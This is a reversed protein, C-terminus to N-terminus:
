PATPLSTDAEPVRTPGTMEPAKDLDQQVGPPLGGAADSGFMQELTDKFRPEFVLVKADRGAAAVVAEVPPGNVAIFQERVEDKIAEFNAQEPALREILKVVLFVQGLKIPQQWVQNVQMKALADSLPKTAPDTLTTPDLEEVLGGNARMQDDLTYKTVLSQFLEQTTNAERIVEKAQEESALVIQRFTVRAPKDFLTARNENFFAQLRADSADLGVGRLANTALTFRIQELLGTDDQGTNKLYETYKAEDGDFEDQKVKELRQRVEDDSPMVNEAQAREYVMERLIMSRLVELGATQELEQIYKERSIDRNNVRAVVSSCGSLVVVLGALM